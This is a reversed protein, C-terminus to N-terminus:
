ACEAPNWTCFGTNVKKGDLGEHEVDTVSSKGEM